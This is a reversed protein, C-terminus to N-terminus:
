CVPGQIYTWKGYEDWYACLGRNVAISKVIYRNSEIGLTEAM